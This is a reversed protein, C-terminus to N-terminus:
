EKRRAPRVREVFNVHYGTTAKYGRKRVYVFVGRQDSTVVGIQGRLQPIQKTLGANWYVVDHKLFKAAM